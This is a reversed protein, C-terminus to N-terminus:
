ASIAFLIAAFERTTPENPEFAEGAELDIVGFEVALLINRYYSDTETIDSFYNDPMNSDDEVTMSFAEVLQSIWEARTVTNAAFATPLLSTFMAITLLTSILRKKM